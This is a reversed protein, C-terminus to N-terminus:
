NQQLTPSGKIKIVNMTDKINKTNGKHDQDLKGTGTHARQKLLAYYIKVATECRWPFIKM